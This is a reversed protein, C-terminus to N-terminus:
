FGQGRHKGLPSVSKIPTCNTYVVCSDKRGTLEGHLDEDGQGFHAVHHECYVCDIIRIQHRGRYVNLPCHDVVDSGIGGYPWRVELKSRADKVRRSFERKRGERRSVDKREGKPCSLWRRPAPKPGDGVVLGELEPLSIDRPTKSLDIEICPQKRRRIEKRKEVDTEHSVRIEVLLQRGERELIIDPRIGQLSEEVLIDDASIEIAEFLAESAENCLDTHMPSYLISSTLYEKDPEGEQGYERGHFAPLVIKKRDRLIQKAALHIHTEGMNNCDSQVDHAFHWVRIEGQRAVLPHGCAACVCGCKRGREVENIGVCQGDRVGIRVHKDSQSVM